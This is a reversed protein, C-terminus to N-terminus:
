RSIRKLCVTYLGLLKATFRVGFRKIFIHVMKSKINQAYNLVWAYQKLWQYAVFKEEKKLFNCQWLAIMYEYSVFSMANKHTDNTSIQNQTFISCSQEVFRVLAQFHKLNVENTVSGERSQRYEYYSFDLLDFKEAHLLVDRVFVLDEGILGDEPFHLDNKVLFEKRYIKSCASGSFKPRSALYAIVEERTKNQLWDKQLYEGMDELTGDSYLKSIQMFCVDFDEIMIRSLIKQISKKAIRDDSDVFAVYKGTALSLGLNRASSHGANNQHVVRINSFHKAFEDCILGSNDKSGDDVLIMEMRSDIQNLISDVCEKIYNEVNYVPIIFSIIRECNM